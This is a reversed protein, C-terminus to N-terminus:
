FNETKQSPRDELLGAIRPNTLKIYENRIKENPLFKLLRLAHGRESNLRVQDMHLIRTSNSIMKFARDVKELDEEENKFYKDIVGIAKEGVNIISEKLLDSM